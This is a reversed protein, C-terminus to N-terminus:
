VYLVRLPILIEAVDFLDVPYARDRTGTNDPQEKQERISKAGVHPNRARM